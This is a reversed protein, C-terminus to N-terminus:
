PNDIKQIYRIDCTFNITSIDPLNTANEDYHITLYILWTSNAALVPTAPSTTIQLIQDEQNETTIEIKDFVADINGTNEITIEYTVSDGPKILSVDFNSTMNSFSPETATCNDCVSTLKIDTIKVDWDGAFKVSGGLTINTTLIAYCTPILFICLILILIIIRKYKM